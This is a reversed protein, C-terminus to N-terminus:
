SRAMRKVALWSPNVQSGASCDRPLPQSRHRCANFEDPEGLPESVTGRRMGGDVIDVQRNGAALEKRQEPRRSAPLYSTLDM